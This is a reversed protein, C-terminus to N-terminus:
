TPRRSASSCMSAWHCPCTGSARRWRRTGCPKRVCCPRCCSSWWRRSTGAPWSSRPTAASADAETELAHARTNLLALREVRDPSRLAALAALYGGMSLGALAFREFPVDALMREVAEPLSAARSLDPIWIDACDHLGVRQPAWLVDNCLLGPILVLPVRVDRNM